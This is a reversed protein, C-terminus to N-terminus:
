SPHTALKHACSQGIPNMVSCEDCWGLKLRRLIRTHESDAQQAWEALHLTKNGITILHNNGKNAAQRKPTAWEVNGPEYHGDNNIRNISHQPSPQRGISQIFENISQFRFEIGRGGYRAYRINNPNNCREKARHFAKYEASGSHGAEGHTTFRRVSLRQRYCGCSLIKGSVLHSGRVVKSAGCECRCLWMCRAKDRGVFGVVLLQNFTQGSLDRFLGHTPITQIQFTTTIM